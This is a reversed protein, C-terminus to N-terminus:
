PPLSIPLWSGRTYKVCVHIRNHLSTPGILFEAFNQSLHRFTSGRPAPNDVDPINRAVIPLPFRDTVAYTHPLNTLSSAKCLRIGKGLVRVTLM